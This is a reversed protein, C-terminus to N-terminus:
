RNGREWSMNGSRVDVVHMASARVGLAEIVEELGVRNLSSLAAMEAVAERRDLLDSLSEEQSPGADVGPPAASFNRPDALDKPTARYAPDSTNIGM